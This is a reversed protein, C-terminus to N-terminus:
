LRKKKLLALREIRTSLPNIQVFEQVLPNKGTKRKFGKLSGKGTDRVKKVGVVKFSISRALPFRGITIERIGKDIAEKLPLAATITGVVKKGLKAKSQVILVEGKKLKRKPLSFIPFIISKTKIKTKTKTKTVAKVKTKSKTKTAVKTIIKTKTPVKTKLVPKAKSIVKAKSIGKTKSLAKAKSLSKAKSLAKAKSISIVRVKAKKLKSKKISLKRRIKASVRDTLEVIGDGVLEFPDLINAIPDRLLIRARKRPIKGRSDIITQKVYSKVLKDKDSKNLATKVTKIQNTNLVTGDLKKSNAKILKTLYRSKRNDSLKKFLAETMKNRSKELDKPKIDKLKTKSFFISGTVGSFVALAFDAPTLEYGQIFGEQLLTSIGERAGALGVAKKKGVGAKILNQALRESSVETKVFGFLQGFQRAKRFNELNNIVKNIESQNLGSAKLFTNFEIQGNKVTEKKFYDIGLFNTIDDSRFRGDKTKSGIASIYNNYLDKDNKLGVKKATSNLFKENVDFFEKGAETVRKTAGVDKIISATTDAIIKAKSKPIVKISIPRRKSSKGLKFTRLVVKSFKGLGRFTLGAAPVIAVVDLVINVLDNGGIRKGRAIKSYTEQSDKNLFPTLERLVRGAKTQSSSMLKFQEIQKPTQTQKTRALFDTQEKETRNLSIIKLAEPVKRFTQKQSAGLFQGKQVEQFLKRAKEQFQIKKPIVERSSSKKVQTIKSGAFSKGIDEAADSEVRVAIRSLRRLRRSRSGSKKSKKPKSIKTGAFSKGVDSPDDSEVRVTVM